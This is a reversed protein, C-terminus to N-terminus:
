KDIKGFPDALRVLETILENTLERMIIDVLAVLAGKANLAIIRSDDIEVKRVISLGNVQCRVEYVSLGGYEARWKKMVVGGIENDPITFVEPVSMESDLSNKSAGSAEKYVDATKLRMRAAFNEDPDVDAKPLTVARELDERTFVHNVRASDHGM